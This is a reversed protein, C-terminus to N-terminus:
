AACTSSIDTRREKKWEEEDKKREHRAEVEWTDNRDWTSLHSDQAKTCDSWIFLITCNGGWGVEGGTQSECLDGM